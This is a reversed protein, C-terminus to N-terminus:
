KSSFGDDRRKFLVNFTTLSGYCQSIYQQLQVKDADDLGTHSNIKQELVRLRDRIMVVKRFLTEIPIEHAKLDPSGPQLTLTGGQWKNGLEVEDVAIYHELVDILVERLTDRDLTTEGQGTLAEIVDAGVPGSDRRVLERVAGGEERSRRVVAGGGFGRRVPARRATDGRSLGGRTSPPAAPATLTVREDFGPLPKFEPCTFDTSCRSGARPYIKCHGYLEPAQGFDDRFFTCAGCTGDKRWEAIGDDPSSM